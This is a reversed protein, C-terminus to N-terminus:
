PLRRTSTSAPKPQTLLLWASVGIAVIGIAFSVDAAIARARVSDLESPSCTRTPACADAQDAHDSAASLAFYTGVGLAAAGLGLMAWAGLPRMATQTETPLPRLVVNVPRNKEGEHVVFTQEMTVYRPSEYRFSHLGPDIAVARGD